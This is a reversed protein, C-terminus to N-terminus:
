LIFGTSVHRDKMCVMTIEYLCNDLDEALM